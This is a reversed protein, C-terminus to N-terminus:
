ARQKGVGVGRPTTRNGELARRGVEHTRGLAIGSDARGGAFVDFEIGAHLHKVVQGGVRKLAVALSAICGISAIEGEQVAEVFLELGASAFGAPHRSCRRWLVTPTAAFYAYIVPMIRSGRVLSRTSSASLRTLPGSRPFSM